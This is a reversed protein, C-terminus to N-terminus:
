SLLKLLEPDVNLASKLQAKTLYKPDLIKAGQLNTNNFKTDQFSCSKLVADKFDADDLCAENLNVEEFIVNWFYINHLKAGELWAKSVQIDSLDLAFGPPDPEYREGITALILQVEVPCNAVAYAEGASTKPTHRSFESRIHGEFIQMTSFYDVASTRAIRALSHLGGLRVSAKDSGLQEVAKSFSEVLLKEQTLKANDQAVALTNQSLKFNQYTFYITIAVALGGLLNVIVTRNAAVQTFWDAPQKYSYQNAMWEPVWLVISFVIALLGITLAVNLVIKLM